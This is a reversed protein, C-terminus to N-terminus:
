CKRNRTIPSEIFPNMKKKYKKKIGNFQLEDDTLIQLMPIVKVFWASTM